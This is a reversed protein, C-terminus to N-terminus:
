SIFFAILFAGGAGKCRVDEVGGGDAPGLHMLPGPAGTVLGIGARDDLFKNM